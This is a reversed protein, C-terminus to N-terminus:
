PLPHTLPPPFHSFSPPSLFSFPLSPFPFPSFLPLLFLSFSFFFFFFFFFSGPWFKECLKFSLRAAEEKGLGEQSSSSSEGEEGKKGALYDDLISVLSPHIVTKISPSLPLLSLLFLSLLSLSFLSLSLFLYPSPSPSLLTFPSSSPILPSIFFSSFLYKM